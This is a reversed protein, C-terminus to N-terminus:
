RQVQYIVIDGSQFVQQLGTDHALLADGKNKYVYSITNRRLFAAREEVNMDHFFAAVEKKKRAIDITAAWHGAYVAREGWGLIDNGTDPDSLFLSDRPSNKRIWTLAANKDQSFFFEDQFKATSFIKIPTIISYLTSPVFIFLFLIITFVVAIHARYGTFKPWRDRVTVIAIGSLAALPFQLGELLRRQFGLPIYLLIITVIAWLALENARRTSDGGSRQAGEHGFLALLMFGGFGCLVFVPSPTWLINQGLMTISNLTFKTLWVYYVVAPLSIAVFLAYCSLLKRMGGGRLIAYACWVAGVAYLTPVYFPHFQFLLLALTGSLIADRLRASAFAKSLIWLSAILLTWSAIFHPSYMMSLFANSEAVWIDTPWQYTGSASTTAQLFVAAFVGFGSCFHFLLFATIQSHRERVFHQLAKWSVLVFIPILIVRLAHYAGLSTLGFHTLLGGISWIINPVAVLHETTALNELFFRGHAAQAISSLYVALDGPSLHIRGTWVFGHVKAFFLAAIAPLSTLALLALSVWAILAFNKRAVDNQFDRRLRLVERVYEAVLKLFQVKSTRGQLRADRWVVPIEEVAIGSREARMVFETDFFWTDNKVTPLVSRMAGAHVAKFGCPADSVRTGLAVCILGRYSYSLFKRFWSREVSSEKAYRSGTAVGRSARDILLPLASLDTALDADMFVYTEAEASNWAARIARGKGREEVRLYRVDAFKTALEQGIESTADDSGNDAIVFIVDLHALTERSVRRLTDITSMLIKEENLVPIAILVRM